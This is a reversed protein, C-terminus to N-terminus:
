GHRGSVSPLWVDRREKLWTTRLRNAAARAPMDEPSLEGLRKYFVKGMSMLAVLGDQAQRRDEEVLRDLAAPPEGPQSDGLLRGLEGGKRLELERRESDMFKKWSALRTRYKEEERKRRRADDADDTKRDNDHTSAGRYGARAFRLYGRSLTASVFEEFEVDAKVAELLWVLKRQGRERAYCLSDESWIAAKALNASAKQDPNM